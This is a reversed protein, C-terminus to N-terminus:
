MAKGGVTLNLRAGRGKEIENRPGSRQSGGPCAGGDRRPDGGLSLGSFQSGPLLRRALSRTETALASSRFYLAARPPGTRPAAPPTRRCAGSHPQLRPWPAARPARSPAARRQGASRRATRGCTLCRLRPRRGPRPHPGDRTPSHAHALSHPRRLRLPRSRTTYTSSAPGADELFVASVVTGRTKRRTGTVKGTSGARQLQM